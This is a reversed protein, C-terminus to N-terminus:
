EKCSRAPIEYVSYKEEFGANLFANKSATNGPKVEGFLTEVEPFDLSVQSRILRLIDGGYGQGRKEKCISYSIEAMNGDIKIRIQGVAENGCMYIYQCCDKSELLRHFWEEHEEQTIIKTTFSNKRVLPENAWMYLLEMDDKTARRLYGDARCEEKGM